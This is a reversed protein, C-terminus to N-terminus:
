QCTGWASLLMGLDAGNVVGDGNLDARPYSPTPGWFALLGGLDAGNVVGDDNLDGVCDAIAMSHFWGASIRTARMNAPVSAQGYANSGWAVVTGDSRLALAHNAGAAIATVGSLNAPVTTPGDVSDGWAAVTHDNRLALVFAYGAAIKTVGSLGSPVV